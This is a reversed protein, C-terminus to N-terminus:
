DSKLEIELMGSVHSLCKMCLLQQVQKNGLATMLALAAMSRATYQLTFANAPANMVLFSSEVAVRMM